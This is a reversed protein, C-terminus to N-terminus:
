RHRLLFRLVVVGVVVVVVVCALSLDVCVRWSL